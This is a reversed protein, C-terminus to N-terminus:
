KGITKWRWAAIGILGSGLLFVTSPEPVPAGVNVTAGSISSIPLVSGSADSLAIQTFGLPSVGTNIVSGSFLFAALPFSAPQLADLEAEFLLSVEDIDVIGPISIDVNSIAEGLGENGLFPGFTASQFTLVSPNFSVDVDFAGLSPPGGATLGSINLTVLAFGGPLVDQSSPTLSLSVAVAQSTMLVSSCALTLLILLTKM